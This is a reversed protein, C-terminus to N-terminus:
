SRTHTFYQASQECDYVRRYTLMDAAALNFWRSRNFLWNQGM